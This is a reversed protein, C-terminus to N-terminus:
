VGHLIVRHRGASFYVVDNGGYQVARITDVQVHGFPGRVLHVANLVRHVQAQLGLHRYPVFVGIEAGLYAKYTRTRFDILVKLHSLSPRLFLNKPCHGLNKLVTKM